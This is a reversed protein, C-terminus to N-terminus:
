KGNHAHCGKDLVAPFGTQCFTVTFIGTWYDLGSLLRTWHISM